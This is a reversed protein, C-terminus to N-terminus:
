SRDYCTRSSFGKITVVDWFCRSLSVFPTASWVSHVFGSNKPEKTWRKSWDKWEVDHRILVSIQEFFLPVSNNQTWSTIWISCGPDCCNLKLLIQGEDRMDEFIFSTNDTSSHSSSGSDTIYMSISSNSSSVSSSLTFRGAPVTWAFMLLCTKLTATKWNTTNSTYFKTFSHFFVKSWLM